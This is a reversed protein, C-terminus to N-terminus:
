YGAAPSSLPGEHLRDAHAFPLLVRRNGRLGPKGDRQTEFSALSFAGGRMGRVPNSTSMTVLRDPDALQLPRLILANVMTFFATNAGIGLTLTLVAVATFSPSRRMMRVAFRLMPLM